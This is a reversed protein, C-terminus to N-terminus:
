KRGIISDRVQSFSRGYRQQCQANWDEIDDLGLAFAVEANFIGQIGLLHYVEKLHRRAEPSLFLIQKSM